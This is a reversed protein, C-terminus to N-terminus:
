AAGGAGAAAQRRWTILVLWLLFVRIEMPLSDPLDIEVKRSWISRAQISGFRHDGQRVAYSRSGWGEPRLTLKQGELQVQDGMRVEFSRSFLRPKAARCLIGRDSSLVFDGWGKQRRIELRKGDLEFQGAERTWALDITSVQRDDQFINYNRSFMGVPEARLM